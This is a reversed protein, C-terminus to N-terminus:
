IDQRCGELKSCPICLSRGNVQQLRSEMVLESCGPCMVSNRIKASAPMDYAVPQLEIIAEEPCYMLFDAYASRDERLGEPVGRGHFVVRMGLGSKRSFLTYVNKGYDRFVLNGKGFTCGAVYQLADVGCADNEVIAVVEEDGSRDLGLGSMAATTMRYGMALGPCSHGHFAVLESYEM